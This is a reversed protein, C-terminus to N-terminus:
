IHILSLDLKYGLKEEYARTWANNEMSEGPAYTVSAGRSWGVSITTLEKGGGQFSGEGAGGGGSGTGPQSCGGAAFLISAALLGALVRRSKM